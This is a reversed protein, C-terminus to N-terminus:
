VPSADNSSSNDDVNNKSRYRQFTMFAVTAWLMAAIAALLMKLPPSLHKCGGGGNDGGDDDDDHSDGCSAAHNINAVIVLESAVAVVAAVLNVLLM